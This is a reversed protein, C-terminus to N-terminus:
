CFIAWIQNPYYFVEVNPYDSDYGIIKIINGTQPHFEFRSINFVRVIFPGGINFGTFILGWKFRCKQLDGDNVNRYSIGECETDGPACPFPYNPNRQYEEVIKIAENRHSNWHDRARIMYEPPSSVSYIKPMYYM